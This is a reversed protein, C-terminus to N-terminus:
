IKVKHVDSQEKSGSAERKDREIKEDLYKKESWNVIYTWLMSLIFCWFFNHTITVWDWGM